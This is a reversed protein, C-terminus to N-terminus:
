FIGRKKKAIRVSVMYSLLAVVLSVIFLIYSKYKMFDMFRNIYPNSQTQMTLQLLIEKVDERKVLVTGMGMFLIATIQSYSEKGYGYFCHFVITLTGYMLMISAVGIIIGFFERFSILDTLLSLVFSLVLDIAVGIGFMFTITIYKALVRKEVSVPLISSVSTFGAKGDATLIAAVDGVMAIPLFMFLILVNTSLNKVDMEGIGNEVMMKQGAQAINGFKASLVFMVSLVVTCFVVYCFIVRQKRLCMMDKIVLGKM